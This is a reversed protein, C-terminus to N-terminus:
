WMKLLTQLDLQEASSEVRDPVPEAQNLQDPLRQALEDVTRKVHRRGIQPDLDVEDAVDKYSDLDDTILVEAEVKSAIDRVLDIVEDARESVIFDLGPLADNADDVVVQLGVKGGKVKVYPSDTGIVARAPGTEVTQRQRSVFGATQVHRYDTTKGLAHGLAELFDAM